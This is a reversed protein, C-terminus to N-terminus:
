ADPKNRPTPEEKGDGADENAIETALVEKREAAAPSIPGDFSAGSSPTPGGDPDANVWANPDIPAQGEGGLDKLPPVRLRNALAAEELAFLESRALEERPLMRALEERPMTPPEITLPAAGKADPSGAKIPASAQAPSEQHGVVPVPLAPRGLSPRQGSPLSPESVEARLMFSSARTAELAAEGEGDGEALSRDRAPEAAAIKGAITVGTLASIARALEARRVSVFVNRERVRIRRVDAKDIGARETLIRQFDAARAGERRGINVFIEAFDADHPRPMAEAGSSPIAESGERRADAEIPRPSSVGGRGRGGEREREGREGRRVVANVSRTDDGLIPEDDGEEEPPQWTIFDAHRQPTRGPLGPIGERSGEAASV